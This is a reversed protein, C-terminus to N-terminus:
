KTHLKFARLVGPLAPEKKQEGKREANARPGLNRCL